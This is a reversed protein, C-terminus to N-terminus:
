AYIYVEVPDNRLMFKGDVICFLATKDTQIVTSTLLRTNKHLSSKVSPRTVNHM